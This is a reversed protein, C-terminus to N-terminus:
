ISLKAFVSKKYTESIPIRKQGIVIRNKQVSTVHSLNVIFSNHVRIFDGDPLKDLIASFSSLTLISKGNHLFIKLYDRFGEIYMIDTLTVKLNEYESKVFIFLGSTSQESKVPSVQMSNALRQNQAFYRNIAKLFRPYSIPKLLYDLAELEFGAVAYDTHATTFIVAPKNPLSAILDIGTLNPMNIDSIILDVQNNTIYQLAVIPDIFLGVLEIFDITKCYNEIVTLALPEDDIIVVKPKTM